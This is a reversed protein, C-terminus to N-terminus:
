RGEYIYRGYLVGKLLLRSNGVDLKEGQRVVLWGDGYEVMRKVNARLIQGKSCRGMSRKMAGRKNGCECSM